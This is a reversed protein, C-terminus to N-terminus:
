FDLSSCLANVWVQIFCPTVLALRTTVRFVAPHPSCHSVEREFSPSLCATGLCPVTRVESQVFLLSCKSYAQFESLM